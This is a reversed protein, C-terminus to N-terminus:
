KNQDLKDGDDNLVFAVPPELAMSVGARLTMTRRLFAFGGLFLSRRQTVVVHVSGDVFTISRDADALKNATDIPDPSLAVARTTERAAHWLALQDRAIITFQVVVM